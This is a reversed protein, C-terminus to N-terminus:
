LSVVVWFLSLVWLFILCCFVPVHVWGSVISWSLVFLAFIIELHTHQLELDFLCILKLYSALMSSLVFYHQTEMLVVPTITCCFAAILRDPSKAGNGLMWVWEIQGYDPLYHGPWLFYLFFSNRIKFLISRFTGTKSLFNRHLKIRRSTTDKLIKIKRRKSTFLPFKIKVKFNSNLKYCLVELYLCKCTEVQLINYMHGYVCRFNTYKKLGDYDDLCDFYWSM